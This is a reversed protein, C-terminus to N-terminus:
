HTASVADLAAKRTAEFEDGPVWSPMDAANAVTLGLWFGFRADEVMGEFNWDGTLEDSPQHYREAEWTEIQARGWGAPRGIFDTSESLSLAPVGIRALSFNDSRYFYGRDPFQDGRVVRSQFAAVSDASQDLTSKGYGILSIDSARGWVNASDYNINAAIKGPPVTPYDAYYKSGLTGQEEAGVFLFLLSRRPPVSLRTFARAMALLQAMGAGNDRAGNFIRDGNADPEGIGLHDHHATYIVAEDRLAPDSGPLFGLVNASQSRELANTLKISTSVGLPVPEFDRSRAAIVLDDLKQGALAVLKTAADETVWARVQLRPEKGAPLEFKEGSWSTQVVQWPYGASPTTHIVIAGAAGHRAANEYKYTWRGYYLRTDGQFLDPDWDPDNNLMLLVKGTLDRGKFDDWGYEPAEIGYGVFVVEANNIAAQEAQVGSAAIFQEHTKLVLRRDGAAFTWDDPVKSTIGILDFLQEWSGDPAGPQYGFAELQRALYQRALKDGETGPSRGGYRDDSIEAVVGRLFDGTIVEAAKQGEPTFSNAAATATAEDPASVQSSQPAQDSCAMVTALTAAILVGRCTNMLELM